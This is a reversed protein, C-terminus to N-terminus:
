SWSLGSAIIIVIQYCGLLVTGVFLGDAYTKYQTGPVAYQLFYTGNIKTMWAGEVYPPSDLENNDGGTEYGRSKYDPVVVPERKSV